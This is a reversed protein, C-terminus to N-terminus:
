KRRFALTESWLRNTVQKDDRVLMNCGDGLKLCKGKKGKEPGYSDWQMFQDHNRKLVAM